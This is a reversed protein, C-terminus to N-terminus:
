PSQRLCLVFKSNVDREGAKARGLQCRARCAFRWGLHTADRQHGRKPGLPLRTLHARAIEASGEYVRVEDAGVEGLLWESLMAARVDAAAESSGMGLGSVIAVWEGESSGEMKVDKDKKRAALEPQPPAGAFLFEAVRFDGSATEAGLAAM